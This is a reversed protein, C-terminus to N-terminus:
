APIDQRPHPETVKRSARRRRVARTLVSIAGALFLGATVLPIIAFWPTDWLGGADGAYIVGALTLTLGAILKGPLFEHRPM